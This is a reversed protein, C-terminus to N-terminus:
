MITINTSGAFLHKQTRNYQKTHAQRQSGAVVKEEHFTDREHHSDFISRNTTNSIKALKPESNKPFFDKGLKARGSQLQFNKHDLYYVDTIPDYLISDSKVIDFHINVDLPLTNAFLKVEDSIVFNGSKNRGCNCNSNFWGGKTECIRCLSACSCLAKVCKNNFCLGNLYLADISCKCTGLSQTPNSRECYPLRCKYCGTLSRHLNTSKRTAPLNYLVAPKADCICNNAYECCRSCMKRLNLKDYYSKNFLTPEHYKNGCTCTQVCVQCVPCYLEDDGIFVTLANARSQVECPPEIIENEIESEAYECFLPSEASSHTKPEKYADYACKGVYAASGLVFVAACAKLTMPVTWGEQQSQVLVSELKDVQFTSTESFQAECANQRRQVRLTEGCKMTKSPLSFKETRCQLTLQSKPLNCSKHEKAFYKTACEFQIQEIMQVVRKPKYDKSSLWKIFRGSCLCPGVVHHPNLITNIEKQVSSMLDRYVKIKAVMMAVQDRDYIDFSLTNGNVLM